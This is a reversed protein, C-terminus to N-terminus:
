TNEPAVCMFSFFPRSSASDFWFQPQSVCHLIIKLPFQTFYMFAFDTDILMLTRLKVKPSMTKKGLAHLLEHAITGEFDCGDGLSVKQGGLEAYKKGIKSSCRFHNNDIKMCYVLLRLQVYMCLVIQHSFCIQLTM